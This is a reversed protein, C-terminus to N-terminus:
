DFNILQGDVLTIIAKKHFVVRSSNKSSKIRLKVNVINVKKVDSGFSKKVLSCIESKTCKPDVLFSYKRDVLQKSSKETYVLAKIKDYNPFAGIM